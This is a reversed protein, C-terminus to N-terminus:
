GKQIKKRLLYFYKKPYMYGKCDDLLVLTIFDDNEYLEVNGSHIDEASGADNDEDYDSGDARWSFEVYADAGDIRIYDEPNLQRGNMVSKSLQKTSKSNAM